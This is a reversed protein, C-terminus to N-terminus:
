CCTSAQLQSELVSIRHQLDRVQGSSSTNPDSAPPFHQQQQQNLSQQRQPQQQQHFGPQPQRQPQQQFSQQPPLSPAPTPAAGGGVAGMVGGQGSGDASGELRGVASGSAPAMHAAPAGQQQPMPASGSHALMAPPPPRTPAFSLVSRLRIDHSFPMRPFISRIRVFM